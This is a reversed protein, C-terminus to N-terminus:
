IMRSYRGASQQIQWFRFLKVLALLSKLGQYSPM